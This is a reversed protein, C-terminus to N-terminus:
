IIWFLLVGLIVFVGLKLGFLKKSIWTYGDNTRVIPMIIGLGQILCFYSLIKEALSFNLFTLYWEQQLWSAQFIFCPILAIM